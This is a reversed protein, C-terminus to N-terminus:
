KKGTFYNNAKRMAFKFGDDNWFQFFRYILNIFNHSGILEVLKISKRKLPHRKLPSYGYYEDWERAFNVDYYIWPKFYGVLHIISSDNKIDEVSSYDTGFCKNIYDLTYTDKFKLFFNYFCNYIVPLLKVKKNLLINFSDQDMYNLGNSSRRINLLAAPTNNERMIELNLLMVGTNFYNQIHLDNNILGIDKVAGAYYDDISITFLDSLDKQILVDSDLYLIKDQDPILDPLDFKFCATSNVHGFNQIDKFKKSTVNIIHVDIGKGRFQDFIEMEAKSLDAAVIYIEYYTHPNKNWALSTIAVVTPIVYHSDCIFAVPVKTM